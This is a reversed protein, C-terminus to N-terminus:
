SRAGTGAFTAETGSTGVVSRYVDLLAETAAEVTFREEFTRRAADALTAGFEPDDLIRLIGAALGGREVVLGNVGDVFVGELGSLRVTVVPRRLVMAEILAGAAGERWSACTVVDAGSMVRPVDDRHGLLSVRDPHRIGALAREIAPTDSGVRGVIWLRADPRAEVVADFQRILDPYAKQRDQRGVALVVRDSADAGLESRLADGGGCRREIPTAARGREAVLVRDSPVSLMTANERGVGETVAHYWSGSLRGTATEIWRYADLKLRGADGCRVREPGYNVNAWTVVLPVHSGTMALQTPLTAEFLSAHVLDPRLTRVLSRIGRVRELLGGVTSLDHVVVGLRELSDVMGQRQTLVVLHLDVGGAILGPAVALLSQETGGDASVGPMVELIRLRGGPGPVTVDREARSDVPAASRRGSRSGVGGAASRRPRLRASRRQQDPM